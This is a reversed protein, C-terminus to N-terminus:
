KLKQRYKEIKKRLNKIQAYVFGYNDCQDIYDGWIAEAIQEKSQPTLAQVMWKLGEDIGFDEIASSNQIHWNRNRISHLELELTIEDAAMATVLDQKNAMILLPIGDLKPDKLITALELGTEFMRRRDTSDVVWVIGAVKDYYDSWHVRLSQQGGVDFINFDMGSFTLQKMKYGRTPATEQPFGGTLTELISSKGANDLGLFRINSIPFFVIIEKQSQKTRNGHFTQFFFNM